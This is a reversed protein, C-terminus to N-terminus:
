RARFGAGKAAERERESVPVKQTEKRRKQHSPTKESLKSSIEATILPHTRAPQTLYRIRDMWS